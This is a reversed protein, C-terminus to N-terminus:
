SIIVQNKITKIEETLAELKSNIANLGKSLAAKSMVGITKHREEVDDLSFKNDPIDLYSM